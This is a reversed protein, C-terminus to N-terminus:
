SGWKADWDAASYDFGQYTAAFIAIVLVDVALGVLAGYLWGKGAIEVGVETVDSARVAQVQDGKELLLYTELETATPRLTGLYLGEIRRGDRLAITVHDDRHVTREAGAPAYPGPTLGDIVAGAGAGLLTCAQTALALFPLTLAVRFPPMTQPSSALRM